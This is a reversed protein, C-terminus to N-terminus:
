LWYTFFDSANNFELEIIGFIPSLSLYKKVWKQKIGVRFYTPHETEWFVLKPFARKGLHQHLERFESNKALLGSVIKELTTKELQQSTKKGKQLEINIELYQNQRRNFKTLM